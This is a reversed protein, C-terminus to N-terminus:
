IIKLMNIKPNNNLANRYVYLIILITWFFISYNAELVFSVVLWGIYIGLVPFSRKSFLSVFLKIIIIFFPLAGIIGFQILFTLFTNHASLSASLLNTTYALGQGWLPKNTFANLGQEWKYIRYINSNDLIYNREFFRQFTQIPLFSYLVVFLVIALLLISYFNIKKFGITAFGIGIFLALMAGRSGTLLVGSSILIFLILFFTRERKEERALFRIWCLVAPFYMFAGLFNCDVFDGNSLSITYRFTGSWDYMERKYLIILLTIITSSIIYGNCMIKLKELDYDRPITLLFFLALWLCYSLFVGTTVYSFMLNGAVKLCLISFFVLASYHEIGMKRFNGKSEIIAVFFILVPLFYYNTIGLYKDNAFIIMVLFLSFLYASPTNRKNLKM